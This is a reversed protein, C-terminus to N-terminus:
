IENEEIIFNGNKLLKYEDSDTDIIKEGVQTEIKSVRWRWKKIHKETIGDVTNLRPLYFLDVEPNLGIIENLNKVMYESIMEDADLQFIYDGSCYSSLKNKWEAFDNKFDIDRIILVNDQNEHELLFNLVNEDGNKEDFLVVIEDNQLKNELLFLFLKKIEILENCVTIAFSIKM